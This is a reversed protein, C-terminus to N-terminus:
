ARGLEREFSESRLLAAMWGFIGAGSTQPNLPNSGIAIEVANTVGDGDADGDPNIIQITNSPSAILSSQGAANSAILSFSGKVGAAVGLNLTASTGGSNVTASNITISAPTFAPTFSFTAGTLNAGTVTFSPITSATASSVAFPPSV